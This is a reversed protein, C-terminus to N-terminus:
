DGETEATPDIRGTDGFLQQPDAAAARHTESRVAHTRDRIGDAPEDHFIQLIEVGMGGLGSRHLLIEGERWGTRLDGGPLFFEGPSVPSFGREVETRGTTYVSKGHCFTAGFTQSATIGLTLSCPVGPYRGVLRTRCRLLHVRERVINEIVQKFRLNNKQTRKRRIRYNWPFLPSSVM